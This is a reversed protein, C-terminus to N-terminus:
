KSKSDYLFLSKCESHLVVPLVRVHQRHLYAHPYRANGSVSSIAALEAYMERGERKREEGIHFTLYFFICILFIKPMHNNAMQVCRNTTGVTSNRLALRAFIETIIQNCPLICAAWCVQVGSLYILGDISTLFIKIIDKATEM